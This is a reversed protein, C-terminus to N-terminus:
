QKLGKSQKLEEARKAKIRAEIDAVDQSTERIYYQKIGPLYEEPKELREIFRINPNFVPVRLESGVRTLKSRILINGGLNYQGKKIAIIQGTVDSRDMYTIKIIDGAHLTNILKTRQGTPDHNKLLQKHLYEMVNQGNRKKPLPEFVTPKPHKLSVFTRVSHVAVSSTRFGTRKAILGFM